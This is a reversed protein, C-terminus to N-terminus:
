KGQLTAQRKKVPSTIADYQRLLKEIEEASQPPSLLYGQGAECYAQKLYELQAETEIGEAIASKHLNHAMNIIARVIDGTNDVDIKQIFSRDIKITAMPFDKVYSLSSYGTGFDDIQFQVGMANIAKFKATVSDSHNLFIGETIELILSHGDLGTKQLVEEVEEVFEPQNIQVSSVNVSMTLPPTQPFKVQWEGIQRCAQYLVWLGISRILGTEEALPIFDLPNIVGNQPHQWRLLAEFGLIRKTSLVFIPQYNLFFEGYNLAKQLDAKMKLRWAAQHRMQPDFIAFRAKGAMKAQYMAIDADRIVDEAQNYCNGNAVIGFSASFGILRGELAIPEKLREQIRETVQVADGPGHTDELLVIFEDGALRAVTDSTRLSAMIRQGAEVLVRDGIPYGLGENVEKFHDFDLIIVSFDFDDHRKTYEVAHKL